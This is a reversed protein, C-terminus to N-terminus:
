GPQRAQFREIRKIWQEIWREFREFSKSRDVGRVVRPNRFGRRRHGGGRGRGAVWGGAAPAHSAGIGWGDIFRDREGRAVRPFLGARGPHARRGLAERPHVGLRRGPSGDPVRRGPRARRRYRPFGRSGGFEARADERRGDVSARLPRRRARRRPHRRGGRGRRRRRRRWAFRGQHRPRHTRRPCGRSHLAHARDVRPRTGRRRRM